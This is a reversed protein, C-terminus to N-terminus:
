RARGDNSYPHQNALCRKEIEQLYNNVFIYYLPGAPMTAPKVDARSYIDAVFKNLVAPNAAGIDTLEHLNNYAFYKIEAAILKKYAPNITSQNVLAIKWDRAAFYPKLLQNNLANNDLTTYRDDLLFQPTETLNVKQLIINEPQGSGSIIKIIKNGADLEITIAKNPHLLLWYPYAQFMLNAFKPGKVPLTIAFSGNKNVPIAVSNESLFGYVVPINIHLDSTGAYNAIKGNLKFQAFAATSSALLLLILYKKM